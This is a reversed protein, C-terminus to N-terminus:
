EKKLHSQVADRLANVDYAQAIAIADCMSTIKFGGGHVVILDAGNEVAEFATTSTPSSPVFVKARRVLSVFDDDKGYIAIEHSSFREKLIDADGIQAPHLKVAISLGSNLLSSVIDSTEQLRGPLGGILVDIDRPATPAEPRARELMEKPVPYVIDGTDRDIWVKDPLTPLSQELPPYSFSFHGRGMYGHQVEITELGRARAIMVLPKQFDDNVFLVRKLKPLRRLVIKWFWFTAQAQKYKSVMVQQLDINSGFRDKLDAAIASIEKQVEPPVRFVPGIARFLFDVALKSIAADPPSAQGTKNVYLVRWGVCSIRDSAEKLNRTSIYLTDVAKTKLTMISLALRALRAIHRLLRVIRMWQSSPADIPTGFFGKEKAILLQPLYRTFDWWRLGQADQCRDFLAKDAEYQNFAMIFAELEGEQQAEHSIADTLEM